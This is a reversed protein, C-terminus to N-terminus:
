DISGQYKDLKIIFSLSILLKSQSQRQYIVGTKNTNIQSMIKQYQNSISPSFSIPKSNFNDRYVVPIVDTQCNSQIQEIQNNKDVLIYRVPEIVAKIIVLSGSSTVAAFVPQDNIMIVLNAMLFLIALVYPRWVRYVM